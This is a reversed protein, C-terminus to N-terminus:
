NSSYSSYSGFHNSLDPCNRPNEPSFVFQTNTDPTGVLFDGQNISASVRDCSWMGIEPKWATQYYTVSAVGGNFSYASVFRPTIAWQNSQNIYGWIGNYKVAALGESFPAVEDFFGTLQTGDERFFSWQAGVRFALPGTAFSTGQFEDISLPYVLKGTRDVLGWKDGKKVAAVSKGFPATEDYTAAIAIACKTDAYGANLNGNADLVTVPALGGSFYGAHFFQPACLQKGTRDVFTWRKDIKVPAINENFDRVETFDGGVVKEGFKNIYNWKGAKKVAALGDCFSRVEDYQADIVTNGFADKFGYADSSVGAADSKTDKFSVVDNTCTQPHAYPVTEHAVAATALGMLLLTSAGGFFGQKMMRLGKTLVGGAQFDVAAVFAFVAFVL